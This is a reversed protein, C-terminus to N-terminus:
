AGEIIVNYKEKFFAIADEKSIKHSNGVKRQFLKRKKVRFGPRELTIAAEFGMLGLEPSYEADQVEIYEPIGFAVNGANDFIKAPLKNDKAYLLRKLFTEAEEGRLTLKAGVPLGPRLGWAAIRKQTVIKSPKRGTLKELLLVGKDLRANDKGAGVNLTLKEIKIKKMSNM